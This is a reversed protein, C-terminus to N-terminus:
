HRDLLIDVTTGIAEPEVRGFFRYRQNDLIWSPSGPIKALEAARFEAVTAGLATGDMLSDLIEKHALHNETLLDKLVGFQGVNRGDRFFAERVRDSFQNAENQGKHLEVAKIVQHPMLSSGPRVKRWVDPHITMGEFESVFKESQEAYRSFASEGTGQKRIRASVDGYLEVHRFRWTVQDETWRGDFKQNIYHGFWGWICFVDSYYDITVAM